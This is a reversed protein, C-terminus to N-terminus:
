KPNLKIKRWKNAPNNYSNQIIIITVVAMATNWSTKSM